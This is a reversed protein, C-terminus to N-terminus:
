IQRRLEEQQRQLSNVNADSWPTDKHEHTEPISPIAFSSDPVEDSTEERIDPSSASHHNISGLVKKEKKSDM